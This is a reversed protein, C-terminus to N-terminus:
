HCTRANERTRAHEEDEDRETNVKEEKSMDDERERSWREIKKEGLRRRIRRDNGNGKKQAESMRGEEEMDKNGKM